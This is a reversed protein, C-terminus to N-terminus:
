RMQKNKLQIKLNKLPSPVPGNEDPNHRNDPRKYPFSAVLLLRRKKVVFLLVIKSLSLLYWVSIQVNLLWSSLRVCFCAVSMELSNEPGDCSSNCNPAMRGAVVPLVLRMLSCIIGSPSASPRIVTALRGGHLTIFIIIVGGKSRWPGPSWLPPYM